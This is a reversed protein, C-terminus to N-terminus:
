EIHWGGQDEIRINIYNGAPLPLSNKSNITSNKKKITVTGGNTMAQNANIVMNGIVQNMQGEDVEVLWLDNALDFHCSAKAGRASFLTSTKLLQNIDATKKIPAGGKSFTLLQQTLTQAHKSSEQVDM